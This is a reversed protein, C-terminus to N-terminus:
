PLGVCGRGAEGGGQDLPQPRKAAAQRAREATAADRERAEAADEAADEELFAEDMSLAQPLSPTGLMAPPHLRSHSALAACSGLTGVALSRRYIAAPWGPSQEAMDGVCPRAGGRCVRIFPERLVGLVGGREYLAPGGELYIRQEGGAVSPVDVALLVFRLNGPLRPHSPSPTLTLFVM